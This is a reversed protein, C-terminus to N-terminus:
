GTMVYRHNAGVGGKPLKNEKKRKSRRRDDAADQQLDVLAGLETAIKNKEGSATAPSLAPIDELVWRWQQEMLTRNSLPPSMSRRALRSLAGASHRTIAVKLWNLLPCCEVEKGADFIAGGLRDWAQRPTLEAEIMMSVFMPTSVSHKTRRM